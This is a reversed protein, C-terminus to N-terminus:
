YSPDTNMGTQAALRNMVDTEREWATLESIM